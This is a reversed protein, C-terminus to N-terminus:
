ASEPKIAQSAFLKRYLLSFFQNPIGNWIHNKMGICPPVWLSVISLFFLKNIQAKRKHLSHSTKIVGWLNWLLAYFTKLLFGKCSIHYVNWPHWLNKGRALRTPCQIAVDFSLVIFKTKGCSVIRFPYMKSHM